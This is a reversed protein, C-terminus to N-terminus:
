VELIRQLGGAGRQPVDRSRGCGDRTRQLCSCRRDLRRLLGHRRRLQQRHVLPRRHHEAHWSTSATGEEVGNVYLRMLGNNAATGVVHYWVGVLATTTGTVVKGTGDDTYHEFKGSSNIRLQHSFVTGPGASSTRTIINDAGSGTWKIWASITYDEPDTAYLASVYNDTGNFNLANGFM